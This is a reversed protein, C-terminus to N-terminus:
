SAKRSKPQKPEADSFPDGAKYTMRAPGSSDSFTSRADKIELIKCKVQLLQRYLVNWEDAPVTLHWLRDNVVNLRSVLSGLGPDDLEQTSIERLQRLQDEVEHAEKHWTFYASRLALNEIIWAQMRTVQARSGRVLLDCPHVILEGEAWKLTALENAVFTNISSESFHSLMKTPLALMWTTKANEVEYGEAELLQCIEAVVTGYREPPIIVPVHESHCHRILDQLKMVPMLILMLIFTSAIGLAFPYGRLLERFMVWKSKPRKDKDSLLLAWLGVLLPLFLAGPLMALRIPTDDIFEPLRICSIMWTGAKPFIVGLATLAWLVSTLAILTLFLQKNAPVKGFLMVMAWGFLTNLIRGAAQIIVALIAQLFFM